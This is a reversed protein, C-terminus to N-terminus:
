RVLEEFGNKAQNLKVAKEMAKIAQKIGIDAKLEKISHHLRSEDMYVARPVKSFEDAVKDMDKFISKDHTKLFENEKEQCKETLKDITAAKVCGDDLDYYKTMGDVSRNMDRATVNDILGNVRLEEIKEKAARTARDMEQQMAKAPDAADVVRAKIEASKKEMERLEEKAFRYFLVAAKEMVRIFRDYNEKAIQDGADAM